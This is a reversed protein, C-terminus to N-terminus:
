FKPEPLKKFAHKALALSKKDWEPDEPFDKIDPDLVVFLKQALRQRRVIITDEDLQQLTVASGAPVTEPLVVRRHDDVQRAKLDASM